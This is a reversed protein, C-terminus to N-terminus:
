PQEFFKAKSLVWIESGNRHLMRLQLQLSDRNNDIATQYESLMNDLDDPHIFYDRLTDLNGPLEEYDYGLMRLYSRSFYIKNTLLNWDWLGDSSAEMAYRHRTDRDHLRALEEELLRIKAALAEESEGSHLSKKGM